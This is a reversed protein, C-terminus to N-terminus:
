LYKAIFKETSYPSYFGTTRAVAEGNEFIIITPIGFVRYKDAIQPLKLVDVKAFVAKDKYKEALQEFVPELSKCPGCQESYFDVVVKKNEKLLKEFEEATQVEIM